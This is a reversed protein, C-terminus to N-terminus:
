GLLFSKIPTGDDLHCEYAEIWLRAKTIMKPLTYEASWVEPQVLCIKTWGPRSTKWTHMKHSTEHREMPLRWFDQLPSPSSVFTDPPADPYVAPTFMQIQYPRNASSRHWGSLTLSEQVNVTFQPEYRALLDREQDLRVRQYAMRNWM